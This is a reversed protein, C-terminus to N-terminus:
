EPHVCFSRNLAKSELLRLPLLGDDGVRRKRRKRRAHMLHEGFERACFDITQAPEAFHAVPFGTLQQEFGAVDTWAHEHQQFSAYLNILAIADPALNQNPVHRWANERQLRTLQGPPGREDVAHRDVGTSANSIGGSLSRASITASASSPSRM